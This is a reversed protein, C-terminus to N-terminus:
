SGAHVTLYGKAWVRGSIGGSQRAFRVGLLAGACFQRRIWTHVGLGWIM